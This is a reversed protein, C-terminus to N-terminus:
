WPQSTFSIGMKRGKKREKVSRLWRIQILLLLLIYDQQWQMKKKRMLYIVNNSLVRNCKSTLLRSSNEIM